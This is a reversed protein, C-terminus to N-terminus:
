QFHRITEDKPASEFDIKLLAVLGSGKRGRRGVSEHYMHNHKNDFLRIRYVTEKNTMTMIIKKRGKEEDSARCNICRAEISHYGSQNSMHHM